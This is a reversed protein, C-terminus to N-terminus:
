RTGGNPLDDTDKSNIQSKNGYGQRLHQRRMPMRDILDIWVSVPTVANRVRYKETGDLGVLITELQYRKVSFYDYYYGSESEQLFMGNNEHEGEPTLLIIAVQREDLEEKAAALLQYQEVFLPDNVDPTFVLLVRSTWQYENLGQASVILPLSLFFLIAFAKM